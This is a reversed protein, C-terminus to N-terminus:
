GFLRKRLTLPKFIRYFGTLSWSAETTTMGSYKYYVDGVRSPFEQKVITIIKGHLLWKSGVKPMLHEHDEVYRVFDYTELFYDLGAKDYGLHTLCRFKLFDGDSNILIVHRFDKEDKLTWLSNKKSNRIKSKLMEYETPMM